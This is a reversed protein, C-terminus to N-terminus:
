SRSRDPVSMRVARTVATGMGSGVVRRKVRKARAATGSRTRRPYHTTCRSRERYFSGHSTLSDKVEPSRIEPPIKPLVVKNNVSPTASDFNPALTPLNPPTSTISCINSQETPAPIPWHM